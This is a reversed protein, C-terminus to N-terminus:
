YYRILKILSKRTLNDNFSPKILYEHHHVNDLDITTEVMEQFKIFDDDLEQFLIFFVAM